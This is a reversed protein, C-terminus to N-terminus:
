EETEEEAKEDVENREQLRERVSELRKVVEMFRARLPTLDKEKEEVITVGGRILENIKARTQAGVFGTAAIGHKKQFRIVADRTGPGFYNTENGPAGGGSGTIRTAPDANLVIQLNRVLEGTARERIDRAFNFGAPIRQIPVVRTTRERPASAEKVIEQVMERIAALEERAEKDTLAEEEGFVPALASFAIAAAMLFVIAIKIMQITKKRKKM